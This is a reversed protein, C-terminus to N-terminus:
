DSINLDENMMQTGMEKMEVKGGFSRKTTTDRFGSLPLQKATQNVSKLRSELHTLSRKVHDNRSLRFLPQKSIFSNSSTQLLLSQSLVSNNSDRLISGVRKPTLNNTKLSLPFLTEFGLNNDIPM